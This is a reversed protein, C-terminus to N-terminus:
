GTAPDKSARAAKRSGRASSPAPAAPAVGTEDGQPEAETGSGFLAAIAGRRSQAEQDIEALVAEARSALDPHSRKATIHSQLAQRIEDTLNLGDLHALVVLQAHLEDELRIALTKM